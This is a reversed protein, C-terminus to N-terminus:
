RLFPLNKRTLGLRERRFRTVSQRFRRQTEKVFFVMASWLCRFRQRTMLPADWIIAVLVRFLRWASSPLEAYQTPHYSRLVAARDGIKNYPKWRHALCKPVHHFRGILSLEAALMADARAMMRILATRELIERRMMSYIPEYVADGAYFSWLMRAFRREPKESELLKGRYEQYRTYGGDGHFRVFTTAM